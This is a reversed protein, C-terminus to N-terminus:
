QADKAAPVDPVPGATEKHYRASIRVASVATKVARPSGAGAQVSGTIVGPVVAILAACM